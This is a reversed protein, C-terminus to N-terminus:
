APEKPTTWQSRLPPHAVSAWWVLPPPAANLARVYRSLQAPEEVVREDFAAVDAAADILQLCLDMDGNHNSGVEAVIYPPNDGGVTVRGLNVTRM